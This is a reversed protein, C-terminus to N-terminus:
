GVISSASAAKRASRPSKAIGRCPAIAIAEAIVPSRTAIVFWGQLKETWSNFARNAKSRNSTILSKVASANARGRRAGSSRCGTPPPEATAPVGSPTSPGPDPRGSGVALAGDEITHALVEIV